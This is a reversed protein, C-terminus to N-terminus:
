GHLRETPQGMLPQVVRAWSTAEDTSWRLAWRGM